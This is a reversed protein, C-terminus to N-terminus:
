CLSYATSCVLLCMTSINFTRLFIFMTIFVSMIANLKTAFSHILSHGNTRENAILYSFILKNTTTNVKIILILKRIDHVVTGFYILNKLEESTM